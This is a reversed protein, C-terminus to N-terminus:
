RGFLRQVLGLLGDFRLDGDSVALVFCPGDDDAHPKHRVSPDALSIDGPGYAGRGDSFGGALCLTMEAGAHTHRPVSSGAAIRLIEAKATAGDIELELQKVGPAVRRWGKGAEARAIAAQLAAPIAILDRSGDRRDKQAPTSRGEAGELRDISAFVRALADAQLPEPSAADLFAGALAAGSRADAARQLEMACELFLAVAADARGSALSALTEVDWDKASGSADVRIM